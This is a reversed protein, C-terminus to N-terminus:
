TKSKSMLWPGVAKHIKKRINVDFQNHALARLKSITEEATEKCRRGKKMERIIDLVPYLDQKKPFYGPLSSM